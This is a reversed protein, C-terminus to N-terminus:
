PARVITGGKVMGLVVNSPVVEHDEPKWPGFYEGTAGEYTGQLNELAAKVKAGETSGAQRMGLALFHVADYAQAALPGMDVHPKGYRKRYAELFKTEGPETASAEIFTQPMVAGEGYPGSKEVFEPSALNWTGLIPVKWGIKELSRAIAASEAGQGVVLLVEAGGARAAKVQATMDTDGAKFTGSYAPKQGRKAIFAELRARGQVGLPGEDCLLAAKSKGRAAFAETVMMECQLADSAGIRFVYNQPFQAFLENVKNGTAAALVHPIRRENTLPIAGACVGTNAGGVIAVVHEKDLFDHVLQLCREPKAEDDGFVLAIKKGLVGGAANVEEAALVAGSRFAEGKAASSGSVPAYAGIRIADDGAASLMLMTVTLSLM